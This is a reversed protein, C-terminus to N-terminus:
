IFDEYPLSSRVSNWKYLNARVVNDFNESTIEKSTSEIIAYTLCTENQNQKQSLDLNVIRTWTGTNIFTTGDEYEHFIPKHTHGVILIKADENQQFFERTVTEYDQFLTLEKLLDEIINKWGLKLRYYHLFRIMLFYYGNAVLFRITFFTDFILGHKIYTPIPRVSNVHDRELKYKNLVHTVYYSGWPPIFYKRGEISEIINNEESFHHAEEYEHGHQLYVGKIPSYLQLDNTLTFKERNEKKIVDFIKAKLSDFLLEADHNGIIYLVKKNKTSLFQNLADFVETHADLIIELKALAAEESWFEDEFFPVFPVALLDLFDGNIILEVETNEYSGSSYYHLFDVLEKDSHFDELHNKRGKYEHGAGLHLDSIVLVTKEVKDKTRKLFKMLGEM